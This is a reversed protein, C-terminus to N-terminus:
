SPAYAVASSLGRQAGHTRNQTTDWAGTSGTQPRSYDAERAQAGREALDAAKGPHVGRRHRRAPRPARRFSSFPSGGRHGSTRTAADVPM